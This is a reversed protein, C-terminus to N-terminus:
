YPTSGADAYAVTDNIQRWVVEITDTPAYAERFRKNNTLWDANSIVVYIKYLHTLLDLTSSGSYPRHNVQVFNDEIASLLQQCLAHDVNRFTNFALTAADHAYCISAAKPGTTGAQIVPTAGLNNSPVVRTASLTAYLTPSLTLFLQGITGCGFNTKISAANLNLLKHM